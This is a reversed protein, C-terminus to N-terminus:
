YVGLNNLDRTIQENAQATVLSGNWKTKSQGAYVWSAYHEGKDSADNTIQWTWKTPHSESWSRSMLGTWQPTNEALDMHLENVNNDITEEVDEIMLRLAQTPSLESM